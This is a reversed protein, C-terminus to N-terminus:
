QDCLPKLPRRAQYPKIQRQDRRCQSIHSAAQESGRGTNAGKCAGLSFEVPVHNVVDQDYLTSVPPFKLVVIIRAGVKCADTDAGHGFEGRKM